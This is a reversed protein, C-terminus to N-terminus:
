APPLAACAARWFALANAFEALADQVAAADAGAPVFQQLLLAQRREDLCLGSAHDRLLGAAKRALPELVADLRPQNWVASLPLLRATIAVRGHAAAQLHIRHSGDIVLTLRGDGRLASAPLSQSAMFAAIAAPPTAASSTM